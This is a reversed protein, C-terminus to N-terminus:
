YGAIAITGARALLEHATPIRGSFDLEGFIDILAHFVPVDNEDLINEVGTQGHRVQFLQEHGPLRAAQLDSGQQIFRRAALKGQFAIVDSKLNRVFKHDAVAEIVGFFVAIQWVNTYDRSLLCARTGRGSRAKTSQKGLLMAGTDVPCSFSVAIMVLMLETTELGSGDGASDSNSSTASTSAVDKSRSVVSRRTASTTRLTM